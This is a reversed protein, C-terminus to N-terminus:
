SVGNILCMFVVPANLLGFPMVIFEYHSYMTKFTTNSIDEEKIKVQHYGSRLDIKSFIQTGRLHYFLDYIKPLHYKIKVIVKKL